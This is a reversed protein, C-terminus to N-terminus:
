SKSAIGVPKEIVSTMSLLWSDDAFTSAEKRKWVEKSVKNDFLAGPWNELLQLNRAHLCKLLPSPTPM